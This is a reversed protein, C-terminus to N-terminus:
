IMIAALVEKKVFVSYDFNDKAMDEELDVLQALTSRKQQYSSYFSSNLSTTSNEMNHQKARQLGIERAKVLGWKGEKNKASAVRRAKETLTFLKSPPAPTTRTSTTKTKEDSYIHDFKPGNDSATTQM